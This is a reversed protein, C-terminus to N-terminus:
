VYQWHYRRATHCNNKHNVCCSINSSFVGTKRQAEKISSFVEGTEVCMVSKSIKGMRSGYTNNYLVSCWELNDVCNNERNEDKHNVQPLKELNPLFVSAVLRHVQYHKMKGNKYLQITLYGYKNKRQKMIREKGTRNYNLSKVRRLNSVMYKGEYDIIDKWVEKTM